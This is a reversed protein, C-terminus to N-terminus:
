NGPLLELLTSAQVVLLYSFITCQIGFIHWTFLLVLTADRLNANWQILKQHTTAFALKKLLVLRAWSCSRLSRPIHPVTVGGLRKFKLVNLYFQIMVDDLDPLKSSNLAVYHKYLLQFFANVLSLIANEMKRLVEM